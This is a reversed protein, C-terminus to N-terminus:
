ESGTLFQRIEQDASNWFREDEGDFVIRSDSIMLVQTKILCFVDSERRLIPEGAPSKDYLHSCLYRVEDPNQTAYISSVNDLDRQRIIERMMRRSIIPDLGSCASDYLMIRPSGALARAVATRRSMGGSLEDPMLDYAQDLAVVHLVRRVEAEIEDDSLGQQPL